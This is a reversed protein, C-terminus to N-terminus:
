PSPVARVQSMVEDVAALPTSRFRSLLHYNATVGGCIWRYAAHLTSLRALERASSVGQSLGYLWLALLIRPDTADRGASGERAKIPAYFRRLDLRELMRWIARAVHEPGILSDLDEGRMIMQKRNPERLRVVEEM